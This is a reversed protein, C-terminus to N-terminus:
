ERNLSDRVDPRHFWWVVAFLAISGLPVVLGDYGVFRLTFNLHTVGALVLLGATVRRDEFRGAFASMLALLYFVVSLPWALLQGPLGATRAYLYEPLTTVHLTIPNALGWPFVLTTGGSTALVTWPVVLLSLLVLRRPKTAFAFVSRAFVPSM